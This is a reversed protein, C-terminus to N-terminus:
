KVCTRHFKIYNCLLKRAVEAPGSSNDLNSAIDLSSFIIRGKGCPIVGVSTGLEFPTTRYSGVVMDEGKIRFGFCQDGNRVVAQYPWNMAGGVPLGELLVHSKTFHIGGIWDKGVAYYGDYDVHAYEAVAKMWTETLGLLILTTGDHEVRELLKQPAITTASPLSWKLCIRGDEQSQRYIVEIRVPKGAELVVPREQKIPSVNHYEDILQQGNIHIRVGRNTEVGIMYLGSEPPCLEGEWKVSFPQNAPLSGDPQAGAVFTRNIDNVSTTAALGSFDQDRYWSAKLTSKGEKDKFYAPTIPSPEDLSSRNVVLWDLTGMEPSFAPLDRGTIRHYFSAVEDRGSTKGYYAGNGELDSAQWNVAVVEDHGGACVLGSADKLEALIRYTGEGENVPIEVEEWLLQGFVDGGKADAPHQKTYVVKGEPSLVRVELSYAGKLGTENVLYFDVLVKGPLRVVQQRSAVAVYLPQTYYSLVGLDGKPNRYIDVIGSHNDYPMSEWGNIMYADGLNQMRMGQIRRGQHEFSVNGMSRTLVDLSDVNMSKEQMFRMFADYQANWFHGDWGTCGDREIQEHILQLRPPTSIAGEEGRMYIETRNDTYMLNEQPGRYYEEMWTAPGGARHNDFWGKRYLTTDFPLMHAKSDEELDNRSAWGSTFTMIRSPDIAHAKRLDNMRKEVLEEDRSFTGGFENILNFLVLSPHSRDRYVMRHLKENVLTRIFPDHGASHFGGPEEYYLLGLEDAKELVVPSGICRHFNLMNLGLVKATRIQKEAMEETAILGTVPFYGWSIASRLMIRRGNLRLTADKGIGDVDFWRFGFTQVDNDLHKKGKRLTVRCTYLNPSSLDWLKADPVHVPIRVENKGKPFSVNELCKSFVIREPSKKECVTIEVDRKVAGPMKNVFSLLANVRTMDPTNQMYIDSIFVPDVGELKVRGIIGSFGRSPPINYAGWKMADFDQWHFNGGPNTVRVALLQEQGLRVHETIDVQFPTEGVVDYAVLKGDLYVEARMRVSEFSLLIRKGKQTDPVQIARYWWSVGISHEPRPNDSVTLYEEVTGPVKVPIAELNDVLRNWGGTPANVPLSKMASLAQPFHEPKMKGLDSGIGQMEFLVEVESPLYLRDDQWCAEKDFWLFWGQGSLSQTYRGGDAFAGLACGSCLCLFLIRLMSKKM